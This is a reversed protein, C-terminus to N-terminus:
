KTQILTTHIQTTTQTHTISKNTQIAQPIRKHNTQKNDTRFVQNNEFEESQSQCKANTDDLKKEDM